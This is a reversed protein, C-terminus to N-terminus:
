VKPIQTEVHQLHKTLAKLKRGVWRLFVYFWVWIQEFLGTVLRGPFFDRCKTSFFFFEADTNYILILIM